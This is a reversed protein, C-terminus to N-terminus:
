ELVAIAEIEILWEPCVLASVAVTTATPYDPRLYERRVENFIPFDAMNVLFVTLKAVNTWEAGAAKLNAQLNQFVQHVQARFDGEGVLKGAANVPVQGSIFLLRRGTALLAQSYATAPTPVRDSQVKELM